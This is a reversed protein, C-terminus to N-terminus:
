ELSHAHVHETAAKPISPHSACVQAQVHKKTKTKQKPQSKTTQASIPACIHIALWTCPPLMGRTVDFSPQTHAPLSNHPAVRLPQQCAVGKDSTAGILPEPSHQHRNVTGKIPTQYKFTQVAASRLDDPRPMTPTAAKRM